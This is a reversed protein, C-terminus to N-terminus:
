NLPFEVDSCSEDWPVVEVSGGILSRDIRGGPGQSGPGRVVLEEIVYHSNCEMAPLAVSYWNSIGDVRLELTVLTARASWSPAEDSYLVESVPNPMAYMPSTVDVPSSDAVPLSGLPVSLMRGVAPSLSGDVAMRNYWLDGCEPTGGFSVSGNVNVLAMRELTVSPRTKFGDLWAVRLSRVSVKSVYRRLSVPVIEGPGEIGWSGRDYMVLFDEGNDELSVKRALFDELSSVGDLSSAPSNAVVVWYMPVGLMVDLSVTGSGYSRTRADLAGDKQRFVMVDLAGVNDEYGYVSAKTAEFAFRVTGRECSPAPSEHLSCGSLVLGLLLNLMIILKPFM